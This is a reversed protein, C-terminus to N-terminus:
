SSSPAELIYGQGRRTRILPPLGDRDIKKRIYGVYVDIVNSGAEAQFDYCHEWLETRSVPQGARMALCELLSYERSTLEIRQGSRQVVRTSTDIELDAIQITPSKNGYARRMLARVRALLEDFFSHFRRQIGFRARPNVLPTQVALRFRM